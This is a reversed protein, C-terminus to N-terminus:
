EFDKGLVSDRVYREMKDLKEHVEDLSEEGTSSTETKLTTTDIKAMLTEILGDGSPLKGDGSSLKDDGGSPLKGDGSSIKDDGGSPLKGDGSTPESDVFQLITHLLAINNGHRHSRVSLHNTLRDYWFSIDGLQSNLIIMHENSIDKKVTYTMFEKAGLSPSNSEVVRDSVCIKLIGTEGYLETAYWCAEGNKEGDFLNPIMDLRHTIAMLADISAVNTWKIELEPMDGNESQVHDICVNLKKNCESVRYRNKVLAYLLYTLSFGVIIFYLVRNSLKDNAM